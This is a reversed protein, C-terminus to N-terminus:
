KERCAKAGEYNGNKYGRSYDKNDWDGKVMTARIKCETNYGEAYGDNYGMDYDEESSDCGSVVLPVLALLYVRM